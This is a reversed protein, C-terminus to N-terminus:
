GGPLVGRGGGLDKGTMVECGRVRREWRHGRSVTRTSSQTLPEQVSSPSSTHSIGRYLPHAQERNGELIWTRLRTGERVRLGLAIQGGHLLSIYWGFPSRM